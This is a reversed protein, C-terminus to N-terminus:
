EVPDGYDSPSLAATYASELGLAGGAAALGYTTDADRWVGQFRASGNGMLTLADELGPARHLSAHSFVIMEGPLLPEAVTFLLDFACPTDLPCASVNMRGTVGAPAPLGLGMSALPQHDVAYTVPVIRPGFAVSGLAAVTVSMTHTVNIMASANAYGGAPFLLGNSTGVFVSMQRGTVDATTATLTFLHGVPDFAVAFAATFNVKAYDGSVDSLTTVATMSPPGFCIPATVTLQDGVALPTSLQFQFRVGVAANTSTTTYHVSASILGVASVNAVPMPDVPAYENIPGRPTSTYIRVASGAGAGSAATPFGEAPLTIDTGNVELLVMQQWPIARSINVTLTYSAAHWAVSGWYPANTAALASPTAISVGPLVVSVSDNALLAISAQFTLLVSVAVGLRPPSFSLSSAYFTPVLQVAQVPARPVIGLSGNSTVTVAAALAPSVGRAPLRLGHVAVTFFGSSPSDVTTANLSILRLTAACPLWQAKFQAVNTALWVDKPSTSWFEPL